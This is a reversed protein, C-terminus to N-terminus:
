ADVSAIRSMILQGLGMMIGAFILMGIGIPSSLMPAFYQPTVFYMFLGLVIPLGTILYGSARAQATLTRLEGAIRVRERITEAISELIESVNGGIKRNIAIATVVMDLDESETRRVMRALADEISSGLNMEKVVRDFEQSMPKATKNAVVDITQAMSYGTKLANSMLVLTDGLQDNFAKLRRRQRWGLYFRPIFYGAVAM